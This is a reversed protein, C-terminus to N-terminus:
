RFIYFDVNDLVQYFNILDNLKRKNLTKLKGNEIQKYYYERTAKIGNQNLLNYIKNRTQYNVDGFIEKETADFSLSIVEDSTWEQHYIVDELMDYLKQRTHKNLKKIQEIPNANYGALRNFIEAASIDNIKNRM